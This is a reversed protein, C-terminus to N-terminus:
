LKRCILLMTEEPTGEAYKKQILIEANYHTIEYCEYRSILIIYTGILTSECCRLFAHVMRGEDLVSDLVLCNLYVVNSNIM